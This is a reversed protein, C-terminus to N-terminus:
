QRGACKEAHKRLKRPAVYGKGCHSCHHPFDHTHSAIIHSKMHSSTTFRAECYSCGHPREGTHTLMHRNLNSRLVFRASCVECRHAKIGEHTKMHTIYNSRQTFEAGCEECQAVKEGSHMRRHDRLPGAEGFGKGCVECTHRKERRHVTAVHRTVNRRETFGKGCETCSFAREGTHTVRHQEMRRSQDTNYSCIGCQFRGDRGIHGHRKKIHNEMNAEGLCKYACHPCAINAVGSGAAQALPAKAPKAKYARVDINLEKAYADGYYVLIESGKEIAKYTRYYMAGKYQYALVNQEQEFRACNVFRLWNSSSPDEADMYHDVRRRRKIEWSYGSNTAQRKDRTFV